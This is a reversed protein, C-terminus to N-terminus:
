NEKALTLATKGVDAPSSIARDELSVIFIEFSSGAASLQV